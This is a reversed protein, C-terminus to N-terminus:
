AAYAQSPLLPEKMYPVVPVSLWAELLTTLLSEAEALPADIQQFNADLLRQQIYFYLGRLRGCYEPAVEDVLSGILEVLIDYVRQIANSRGPIDGASLCRRADQVLAIAKRYLMRLLEIPDASLVHQDFYTSVPNM